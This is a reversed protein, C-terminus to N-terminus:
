DALIATVVCQALPLSSCWLVARVYTIYCRSVWLCGRSGRDRLSVAALMNIRSECHLSKKLVSCVYVYSSLLLAWECSTSWRCSNVIIARTLIVHFLNYVHCMSFLTSYFFFISLEAPPVLGPGRHNSMWSLACNLQNLLLLLICMHSMVPCPLEGCLVLSSVSGSYMSIKKKLLVLLLIIYAM